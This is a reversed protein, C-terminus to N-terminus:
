RPIPDDVGPECSDTAFIRFTVDPVVVNWPLPPILMALPHKEIEELQRESEVRPPCTFKVVPTVPIRGIVLPPVLEEENEGLEMM